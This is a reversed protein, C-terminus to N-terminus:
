IKTQRVQAEKMGRAGELQEPSSATEQQFLFRYKEGTGMNRESKLLFVKSNSELKFKTPNKKFQLNCFHDRL